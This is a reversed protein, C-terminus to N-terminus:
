LNKRSTPPIYYCICEYQVNMDSMDDVGVGVIGRM